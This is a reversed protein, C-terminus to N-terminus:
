EIASIISIAEDTIIAEPLLGRM